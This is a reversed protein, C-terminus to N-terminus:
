HFIKIFFAPYKKKLENNMAQFMEFGKIIKQKFREGESSGGIITMRFCDRNFILRAYFHKIDSVLVNLANDIEPCGTAPLYKEDNEIQIKIDIKFPGHILSFLEIRSEEYLYEMSFAKGLNIDKFSGSPQLPTNDKAIASAATDDQFSHFLQKELEQYRGMPGGGGKNMLVLFSMFPHDIMSVVSADNFFGMLYFHSIDNYWKPLFQSTIFKIGINNSLKLFDRKSYTIKRWAIWTAIYILIIIIINIIDNRHVPFPVSSGMLYSILDLM